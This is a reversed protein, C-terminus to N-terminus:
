FFTRKELKSSLKRVNQTKREFVKISFYTM